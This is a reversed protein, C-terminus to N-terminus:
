VKIWCKATLYLYKSRWKSILDSVKEESLIQIEIPPELNNSNKNFVIYVTIPKSKFQNVNMNNNMNFNLNNNRNLNINNMLMNM